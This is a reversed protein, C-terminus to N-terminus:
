LSEDRWAEEKEFCTIILEFSVCSMLRFFYKMRPICLLTKMSLGRSSSEESHRWPFHLFPYSFGKERTNTDGGKNLSEM